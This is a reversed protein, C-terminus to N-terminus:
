PHALYGLLGVRYNITVVIVGRRALADGWYLPISGSEQTFGGGPIWVMVPLSEDRSKAPTWISLTLCDESVPEAPSGPVSVGRQMCIPGFKDAQRVGKWPLPPQPPQWRLAGLPPAAFPISKYVTIAGDQVGQILGSEIQVTQTSAALPVLLFASFLLM